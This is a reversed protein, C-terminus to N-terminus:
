EYYLNPYPDIRVVIKEVDHSPDAHPEQYAIMVDQNYERLAQIRELAAQRMLVHWRNNEHPLVAEGPIALDYIMKARVSSVTFTNVGNVYWDITYRTEDHEEKTEPYDVESRTTNTTRDIYNVMFGLGYDFPHGHDRIQGSALLSAQQAYYDMTDSRM